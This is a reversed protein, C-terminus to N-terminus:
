FIFFAPPFGRRELGPRRTGLGARGPKSEEPRQGNQGAQHNQGIEVGEPGFPLKVVVGVDGLVGIDPDLRQARTREPAGHHLVALLVAREGVEGKGEIVIEVMGVDPAIVEDVQNPM